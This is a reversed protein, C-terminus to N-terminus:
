ADQIGKLKRLMMRLNQRWHHVPCDLIEWTASKDLVSYPPRRAPTPYAEARIPKVMIKRELLGIALADEQIAVAFDYWSAVGADTWHLVGSVKQRAASWVADALSGAWTPTGVQDDVVGIEDRERMLRLMTLVFNNGFASYVWSTRIITAKDKLIELCLQEGELKSVGYVNLPDPMDDALYPSSKKGDFVFDTSIHIMRGDTVRMAEALNAVGTGNVSRANEKDDEARDVATYASANILLEPRFEEVFSLVATRDRIDLDRSGTAKIQWGEPVSGLLHRGLQGDRGTVLVKM